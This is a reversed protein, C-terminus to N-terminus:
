ECLSGFEGILIGLDATDVSGDGNVDAEPDATGFRGILIGLDATDVVGDGNIDSRCAALGVIAGPGVVTGSSTEIASFSAWQSTVWYYTSGAHLLAGFSSVGSPDGNHAFGNGLGYDLLNSLPAQPDFADRYLFTFHNNGSALVSTFGYVGSVDVTFALAEYAVPGQGSIGEIFFPRNWQQGSVPTADRMTAVDGASAFLHYSVDRLGYTWGSQPTTSGFTFMWTGDGDVPSGYVASGDQLPYDAITVDGSIPNFVGSGAAGPSTAAMTVDLSWPGLGDVFDGSVTTYRATIGIGIVPIVPDGLGPFGASRVVPSTTPVNFDADTSSAVLRLAGLAPGSVFLGALSVLLLRSRHM